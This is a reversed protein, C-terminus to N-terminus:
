PPLNRCPTKKVVLDTFVHLTLLERCYSSANADQLEEKPPMGHSCVTLVSSCFLVAEVAIYLGDARM